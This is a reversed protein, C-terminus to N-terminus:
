YFIFKDINRTQKNKELIKENNKILLLIFIM